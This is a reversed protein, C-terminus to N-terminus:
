PPGTGADDWCISASGARCVQGSATSSDNGPDHRNGDCGCTGAVHVRKQACTGRTHSLKMSLRDQLAHRVLAALSIRHRVAARHNRFSVRHGVVQSAPVLLTHLYSRACHAWSSSRLCSWPWPPRSWHSDEAGVACRTGTGEEQLQWLVRGMQDSAKELIM